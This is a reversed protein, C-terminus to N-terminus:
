GRPPWEISDIIDNTRGKPTPADLDLGHRTAFEELPRFYERIEPELTTTPPTTNNLIDPLRTWIWQLVGSRVASHLYAAHLVTESLVAEEFASRLRGDLEDLEITIPPRKRDRLTVWRDPHFTWEGHASANRARLCLEDLLKGTKPSSLANYFTPVGVPFTPWDRNTVSSVALLRASYPVYVREFFSQAFTLLRKARSEGELRGDLTSLIGISDAMSVFDIQCSPEQGVLVEMAPVATSAANFLQSFAPANAGAESMARTATESFERGVDDYSVSALARLLDSITEAGGEGLDSAIARGIAHLSTQPSDFLGAVITPVVSLTGEFTPRLDRIAKSRTLASRKRTM